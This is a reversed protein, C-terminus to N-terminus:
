LGRLEKRKAIYAEHAEQETEFTGIYQYQGKYVIRARWRNTPLHYHAGKLNHRSEVRNKGRSRLILNEIRTNKFDGDIPCVNHTSPIKGHHMEWVLRHLRYQTSNACVVLVGNKTSVSPKVLMGMYRVGGTAADYTFHKIM